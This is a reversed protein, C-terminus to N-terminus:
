EGKNKYNEKVRKYFDRENKYYYIPKYILYPIFLVLYLILNTQLSASLILHVFILVYALYAFNQIRKWNYFQFKARIKKFSLIFLPVMIIYAILGILEFRGLGFFKDIIFFIAHPTLVIFGIISLEARISYLRKYLKTKKNLVGIIMVVYFIALGLFGKYFPMFIPVQRLTSTIVCIITFIIYIITHHKRIKNSFFYGLLMTVAIFPLTIM